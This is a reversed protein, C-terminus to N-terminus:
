DTKGIPFKLIYLYFYTSYLLTFLEVNSLKDTIPNEWQPRWKDLVINYDYAINDIFNGTRSTFRTIDPLCCVVVCRCCRKLSCTPFLHGKFDWKVSHPILAVSSSTLIRPFGLRPSYRNSVNSAKNMLSNAGTSLAFSSYMLM